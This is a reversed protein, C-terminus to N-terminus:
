SRAVALLSGVQTDDCGAILYRSEMGFGTSWSGCHSVWAGSPTQTFGFHIERRHWTADDVVARTVRVVFWYTNTSDNGDYRFGEIYETSVGSLATGGQKPIGGVSTPAVGYSMLETQAEKVYSQLTAVAGAVKARRVYDGYQPVALSALLGIIAITIMLEVLTFGQSKRRNMRISKM